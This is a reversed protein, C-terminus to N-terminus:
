LWGKRRFYIYPLVAFLMMIILAMPYGKAWDLEPMHKFNMGYMSAVLTPPLFFVSVVSFIKIIMNQEINIMGLLANLQFSIKDAAFNTQQTLESTDSILIGINKDLESAAPVTRKFFHLLRNISHLSENMKSNLDACTGMSKLTNKMMQSTTKREKESDEGAFIRHSFNDLTEEVVEMNYAVRTIMEGLLGELLQSSTKFTNPLSLLRSALVNFSTPSIDRITILSSPTLIFTVASINPYPSEHKTIIAATMYAISDEIYLRNLVNNKWVDSKSPLQIACNKQILDLDHTSASEVDIWLTNEPITEKEDLKKSQIINDQRYFVTIM